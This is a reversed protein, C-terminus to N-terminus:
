LIDTVGMGALEERTLEPRFRLSLLVRLNKHSVIPRHPRGINFLIPQNAEVRCLEIASGDAKMWVGGLPNKVATNNLQDLYDTEASIVVGDKKYDAYYVDNGKDAIGDYWVAYTDDCNLLPINLAMFTSGDLYDVHIKFEDSNNVVSFGVHYWKHKLQFHEILQNIAPCSEAMRHTDIVVFSSKEPIVGAMEKFFAALCQEQLEKLNPVTVPSYFWDPTQPQFYMFNSIDYNQIFLKLLAL